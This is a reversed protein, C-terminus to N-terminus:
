YTVGHRPAEGDEKLWIFPLKNWEDITFEVTKVQEEGMVFAQVKSNETVPEEVRGFGVAHPVGAWDVWKKMKIRLM